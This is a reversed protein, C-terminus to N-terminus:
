PTLDKISPKDIIKEIERMQAATMRPKPLEGDVLVEERSFQWNILRMGERQGECGQRLLDRHLGPKGRVKYLSPDDALFVAGAKTAPLDAFKDRAAQSSGSGVLSVGDTGPEAGDETSKILARIGEGGMKTVDYTYSPVWQSPDDALPHVAGKKLAFREVCAEATEEGERWDTCGALMGTAILVAIITRGM